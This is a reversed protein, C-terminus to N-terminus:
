SPVESGELSKNEMISTRDAHLTVTGSRLGNWVHGHGIYRTTELSWRLNGACFAHLTDLYAHVSRAPYRTRLTDTLTTLSHDVKRIEDCVWDVAQQLTYGESQQLVGVAHWFDGSVQEKRFSFLDNVFMVHEVATEGALRLEPDVAKLDSLDEDLVYEITVLYPLMGITIRRIDLYTKLDVSRRGKRYSQERQSCDYWDRWCQIFREYVRVPMTRKLTGFADVLAPGHPHEAVWEGAPEDFLAHELLAMDDVVFMLSTLKSGHLVREAIGHPFILSDWMAHRQALVRLFAEHNSFPVFERMWTANKEYIVPYDPHIKPATSCVVEPLRYSAGPIFHNPARFSM